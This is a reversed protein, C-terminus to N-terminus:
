ENGRSAVTRHFEDFIISWGWEVPAFKRVTGLGAGKNQRHGCALCMAGVRRIETEKSIESEALLGSVVPGECEECTYASLHLYQKKMYTDSSVTAPRSHGEVEFLTRDFNVM